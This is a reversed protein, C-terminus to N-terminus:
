YIFIFVIYKCIIYLDVYGLSAISLNIFLAGNSFSPSRECVDRSEALMNDFMLLRFM